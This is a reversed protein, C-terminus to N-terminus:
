TGDNGRLRSDLRDAASKWHSASQIAAKASIVPREFPIGNGIVGSGAPSDFISVGGTFPATDSFVPKVSRQMICHRIFGRVRSAGASSFAPQSGGDGGLPRPCLSWKVRGDGRQPLPTPTLPHKDSLKAASLLLLSFLNASNRFPCHPASSASPLSFNHEPPRM